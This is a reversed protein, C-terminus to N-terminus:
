VGRALVLASKWPLKPRTQESLSNLRLDGKLLSNSVMNVGVCEPNLEILGWDLLCGNKHHVRHGSTAFVSGIERNTSMATEKKKEIKAIKEESKFVTKELDENCRAVTYEHDVLSPHCIRIPERNKAEV